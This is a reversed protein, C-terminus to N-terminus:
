FSHSFSTSEIPDGCKYLAYEISQTPMSGLVSIRFVELTGM